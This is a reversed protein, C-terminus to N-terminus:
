STSRTLSQASEISNSAAAIDDQWLLSKVVINGYNIDNEDVLFDAPGLAIEFM